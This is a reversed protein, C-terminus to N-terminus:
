ILSQNDSQNRYVALQLSNTKAGAVMKINDMKTRGTHDGHCHVCIVRFWETKDEGRRSSSLLPESRPKCYISPASQM